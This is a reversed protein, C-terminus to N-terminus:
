KKRFVFSAVSIRSSRIEYRESKSASLLDELNVAKEGRALSTGLYALFAIRAPLEKKLKSRMGGLSKYIRFFGALEEIVLNINDDTGKCTKGGFATYSTNFISWEPLPHFNCHSPTINLGLLQNPTPWLVANRDPTSWGSDLVIRTLKEGRTTKDGDSWLGLDIAWRRRTATVKRLYDDSIDISAVPVESLSETRRSLPETRKTSARTSEIRGSPNGSNSYQREINVIRSLLSRVTPQTFQGFLVSRKYIILNTLASSFKLKDFDSALSALFVEGDAELLLITLILSIAEDTNLKKQGLKHICIAVAELNPLIEISKKQVRILGLSGFFDVFNLSQIGFEIRALREVSSLTLDGDKLYLEALATVRELLKELGVSYGIKRFFVSYKEYRAIDAM